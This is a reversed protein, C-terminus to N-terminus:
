ESPHPLLIVQAGLNLVQMLLMTLNWGIEPFPLLHALIYNLSLAIVWCSDPVPSLGLVLSWVFLFGLNTSIKRHKSKSLETKQAFKLIHM